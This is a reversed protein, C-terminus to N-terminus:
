YIGVICKTKSVFLVVNNYKTAEGWLYNNDSLYKHILRLDDHIIFQISENFNKHLIDSAILVLTKTLEGRKSDIDHCIFNCEIALEMLSKIQENWETM